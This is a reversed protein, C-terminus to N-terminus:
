LVFISGIMFYTFNITLHVKEPCALFPLIHVEVAKELAELELVNGKRVRKKECSARRLVADYCLIVEKSWLGDDLRLATLLFLIASQQGSVVSHSVRLDELEFVYDLLSAETMSLFNLNRKQLFKHLKTLTRNWGSLTSKSKKAAMLMVRQKDRETTVYDELIPLMVLPKRQELANNHRPKQRSALFKRRDFAMIRYFLIFNKPRQTQSIAVFM